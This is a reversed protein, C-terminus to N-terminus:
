QRMVDHTVDHDAHNSGPDNGHPRPNSVGRQRAEALIRDDEGLQIASPDHLNTRHSDFLSARLNKTLMDALNNHTRVYCIDILGSEIHDRIHHHRIDIHRTRGSATLNKSMDIVGTNDTYIVMPRRVTIGLFEVVQIIFLMECLCQSVAMYEAETSSLAVSDQMRSKWFMLNSDVYILFGTVSRRTDPDAAYTADAIGTINIERTNTSAHLVNGYEPTDHVYKLARQLARMHEPKAKAMHKSLKRAATAIDPRSHKVLYMLKGVGARYNKQEEDSLPDEYETVKQLIQGPAAPTDFSREEMPSLKQLSGLLRDQTIRIKNGSHNINCGLYENMDGTNPKIAFRASIDKLVQELLPPSGVLIGDDVHIGCLVMENGEIRVFLCPDAPCRKFKGGKPDILYSAFEVYFRRAAQVLGYLAKNLKLVYGRPCGNYGEPPYIWVPENDPLKGYLFATVVDYLAHSFNRDLGLLLWLLIRWTLDQMVPAFANMFDIGPIKQYGLVVLRARYRGDPKKVLVWRTGIPKRGRPLSSLPVAVWVVNKKINSFETDRAERWHKGDPGNMAEEYSMPEVQASAFCFDGGYMLVTLALDRVQKDPHQGLRIMAEMPDFGSEEARSRTMIRGVQLPHPGQVPETEPEPEPAPEPEPEPEPKPEPAFQPPVPEPQVPQQNAMEEKVSPELVGTVDSVAPLKADDDDPDDGPADDDDPDDDPADDDDDDPDVFSDDDDTDDESPDERRQDDMWMRNVWRVDRSVRIARTVPNYFRFVDAAHDRAYGVFILKDARDALKSAIKDRRAVWAAEGFQHLYKVFGIQAKEKYFLKMTCEKQGPPILINDLLTITSVAEGWLKYKLGTGFKAAAYLARLRDILTAFGREVVGNQQPTNPATFEFQIGM